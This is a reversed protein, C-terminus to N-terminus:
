YEDQLLMQINIELIKKKKKVESQKLNKKKFSTYM